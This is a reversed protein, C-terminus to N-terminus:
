CPALTHISTSQLPWIPQWHWILRPSLRWDEHLWTLLSAAKGANSRRDPAIAYRNHLEDPELVACHALSGLRMAATPEMTPRQPNLYRSWYHYPSQMVAKLHSASIAPDAHYDANTLTM